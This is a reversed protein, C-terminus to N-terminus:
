DKIFRKISKPTASAHLHLYNNECEEANKRLRKKITLPNESTHKEIEKIAEQEVFYYAWVEKALENRKSDRYTKLLERVAFIFCIATLVTSFATLYDMTTM